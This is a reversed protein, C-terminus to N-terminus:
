KPLSSFTSRQPLLSILQLLATATHVPSAIMYHAATPGKGVHVTIGKRLVEFAFEDTPDDGFFIPLPKGTQVLLKLATTGKNCDTAPRVELALKAVTVRIKGQKIFPAVIENFKHEAMSRQSMPIRRLHFTLSWRKNEVFVGPIYRTHQKLNKFIKQMLLRTRRASPHVEKKGNAYRIELGHNGAYTLRPLAVKKLLFSLPRGSIIAVSVNPLLSINKLVARTAAPLTAQAPDNVLPALTGDFDLFFATRRSHRLRNEDATSLNKLLKV